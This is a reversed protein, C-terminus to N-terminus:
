CSIKEEFSIVSSYKVFIVVLANMRMLLQWIVASYCTIFWHM